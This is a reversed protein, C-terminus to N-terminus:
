WKNYEGSCLCVCWVCVELNQNVDSQQNSYDELWRHGCSIRRAAMHMQNLEKM